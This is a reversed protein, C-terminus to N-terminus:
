DDHIIARNKKKKKKSNVGKLKLTLKLSPEENVQSSASASNELCVKRLDISVVFSENPSAYFPFRSTASQSLPNAPEMVTVPDIIEESEYGEMLITSTVYKPLGHNILIMERQDSKKSKTSSQVKQKKEEKRPRKASRDVRSGAASANNLISFFDSETITPKEPENQYTEIIDAIIDKHRTAQTDENIEEMEQTSTQHHEKTESDPITRNLPDCDDQQQDYDHYHHQSGHHHLEPPYDQHNYYSTQHEYEYENNAREERQWDSSSIFLFSISLLLTLTHLIIKYM